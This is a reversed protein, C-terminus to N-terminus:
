KALLAKLTSWHKKKLQGSIISLSIYAVLATLLQLLINDFLYIAGVYAILGCLLLVPLPQISIRVLKRDVLLFYLTAQIMTTAMFAIAAGLGGFFHILVLNLVLNCASSAITIISVQRYKKASFSITWLLNIFFHLPICISLIGFERANSAGYKGDFIAGIWPSWVINLLLPISVAFLIELSLINNLQGGKEDDLKGETALLRSFRPMIVPAIIIIPLKALEFARYAFSYDGTVANTSLIGLLIWDMRSLGSDFIVAIFQGRAEKVLKVYASFRVQLSFSTRSLVYVLLAIFEFASCGILIWIVSQTDLHHRTLFYWALVLKLVNSVLAIVGYPAFREKANLFQKLPSGMFTLAQAVFFWILINADDWNSITLSLIYLVVITVVSCVITHLLYAAAAWESSKSASVRRLVVQELGLSLFTVIFM